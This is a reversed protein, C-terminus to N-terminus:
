RVGPSSTTGPSTVSESVNCFVESSAMKLTRIKICVAEPASSILRYSAIAAPSITSAVCTTRTVCAWSSAPSTTTNMLLPSSVSVMAPEPLM